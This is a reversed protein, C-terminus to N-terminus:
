AGRNAIYSKVQAIQREISSPSHTGLSFRTYALVTGKLPLGPTGVTPPINGFHGPSRDNAPSVSLKRM